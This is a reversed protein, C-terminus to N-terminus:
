PKARTLSGRLHFGVRKRAAAASRLEVRHMFQSGEVILVVLSYATPGQLGAVPNEETVLLVSEAPKASFPPRLDAEAGFGMGYGFTNPVLAEEGIVLTVGAILGETL